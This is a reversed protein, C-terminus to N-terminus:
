QRASEDALSQAINASTCFEFAAEYRAYADRGILFPNPAGPRLARVEDLRALLNDTDGHAGIEAEVHARETFERFHEVSRRFTERGELTMPVGNGGWDAVMVTAGHAKAPFIFSMTGPTHGPTFVTTITTDGLSLTGGDTLVIDDSARVLKPAHPFSPNAMGGWAIESAAVKAGYTRKFYAAGGYHDFHEHTILVYKVEKPDLGVARMQTDIWRGDQENNLSDLLVIGASTKLVWAGVDAHGIYYLNDFVKTPPPDALGSEVHAMKATCRFALTTPWDKGAVEYAMDAYAIATPDTFGSVQRMEAASTVPKPLGAVPPKANAAPALTLSCLLAGVAGSIKSM